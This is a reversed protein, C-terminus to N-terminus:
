GQRARVSDFWDAPYCMGATRDLGPHADNLAGFRPNFWHIFLSFSSPLLVLALEAGEKDGLMNHPQLGDRELLPEIIWPQCEPLQELASLSKSM